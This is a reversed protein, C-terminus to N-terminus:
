VTGGVEIIEITKQYELRIKFVLTKIKSLQHYGGMGKGVSADWFISDVHM